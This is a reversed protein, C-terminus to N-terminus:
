SMAGGLAKKKAYSSALGKAAKTPEDLLGYKQALYGAGVAAAGLGARKIGKRVGPALPKKTIDTAEDVDSRNSRWFGPRVEKIYGGSKYAFDDMTHILSDIVSNYNELIYRARSM